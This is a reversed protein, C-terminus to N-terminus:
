IEIVAQTPDRAVVCDGLVFAGGPEVVNFIRRYLDEKEESVLHHIALNSAVLDFPGSPLGEQLAREELTVRESPLRRRAAALMEPSSDIGHLTAEPHAALLLEATIGSGVGLELIRRAPRTRTAKVVMGQLLDFDEIDDRIENEYGQPDWTVAGM